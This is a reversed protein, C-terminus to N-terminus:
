KAYVAPNLGGYVRIPVRVDAPDLTASAAAFTRLEDLTPGNAVFQRGAAGLSEWAEPSNPSGSREAATPATLTPDITQNATGYVNNLLQLAGNWIVGTFLLLVVTTVVLISVLRAVPKPILRNVLGTPWQVIRRLGRALQLVLLAVILTTLVIAAGHVSTTHDMGFLARIDNQWRVGLVVFLPVFVVTCGLLVWWAIRSVRPNWRIRFGVKVVVWEALAGFSYGLVVCVGSVVGQYLWDRPILSPTLSFCFVVLALVLGTASFRRGYRQADGLVRRGPSRRDANDAPGSGGTTSTSDGGVTTENGSEASTMAGVIAWTVVPKRFVRRYQSTQSM